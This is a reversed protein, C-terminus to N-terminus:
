VYFCALNAELWSLHWKLSFTLEVVKVQFSFHLPLSGERQYFVKWKNEMSLHWRPQFVQDRCLSFVESQYIPASVNTSLHTFVKSLSSSSVFSLNWAPTTLLYSGEKGLHSGHPFFPAKWNASIFFCSYEFFASALPAPLLLLFLTGYWCNLASLSGWKRSQSKGRGAVNTASVEKPSLFLLLLCSHCDSSSAAWNQLQFRHEYM